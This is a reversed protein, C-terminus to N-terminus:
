IFQRKLGNFRRKTKLGQLARRAWVSGGCLVSEYSSRLVSLASSPRPRARVTHTVIEEIRPLLQETWRRASGDRETRCVARTPFRRTKGTLYGVHGYLLVM